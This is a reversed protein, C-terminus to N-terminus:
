QKQIIIEKIQGNNAKIRLKVSSKGALPPNNMLTCISITEYNVDDVAMIQDGVHISEKLTNDWVFGVFLKNDNVRVSIPFKPETMDVNDKFPEFYFNKNKYDVTVNGFKLIDHGIRSNNDSSTQTSVNQFSTGNIEMKPLLLRLSKKDQGNGHLGNSSRGYGEAEVKFIPFNKFVRHYNTDALDYFGRSGTDFLLQERGTKQGMLKVRIYPSSQPKSLVMKSAYKKEVDIKTINDTLVITSDTYSLRIISNRLMNSGIIGDIKMCDIFQPSDVVITPINNFSVGGFVLEDVSVVATTDKTGNSDGLPIRNIVKFHLKEQLAKSVANPAGTDLMFKYDNGKIKATVLIFGHYNEFKIVSFYNTQETGGTNIFSPALVRCSNTVFLLLLFYFRYKM